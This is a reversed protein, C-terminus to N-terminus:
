TSNGVLQRTIAKAVEWFLAADGAVLQVGHTLEKHPHIYNRYDRLIEGVDRASPSIWGLEHAVDIYNRLTWENLALPKTSRRDKPATSASFISKKNPERNVRALLLTELLGGMM